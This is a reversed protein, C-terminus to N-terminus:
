FIKFLKFLLCFNLYKRKGCRFRDKFFLISFLCVYKWDIKILILYFLFKIVKECYEARSVKIIANLHNMFNGLNYKDTWFFIYIFFYLSNWFLSYTKLLLRFLFNLYTLILDLIKDMVWHFTSVSHMLNFLLKAFWSYCIRILCFNFEIEVWVATKSLFVVKSFIPGLEM